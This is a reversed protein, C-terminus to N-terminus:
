PHSTPIRTPKINVEASDLIEGSNADLYLHQVVDACDWLTLSWIVPQDQVALVRELIIFGCADKDPDASKRGAQNLMYELAEQSDVKWDVETIPEHQYIPYEQTFVKSTIAGDQYLDVSLSELDKSPSQFSASIMSFDYSKPFLFIRADDLYADPQWKQAEELLIPYYQRFSPIKVPTDHTVPTCGILIFIISIIISAYRGSIKM